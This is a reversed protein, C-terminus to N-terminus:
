DMVIQQQVPLRHLPTDVNRCGGIIIIERVMMTNMMNMKRCYGSSHM